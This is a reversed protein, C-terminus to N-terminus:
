ELFGIMYITTEETEPTRINLPASGSAVIKGDLYLPATVNPTTDKIYLPATDGLNFDTQIHLTTIPKSTSGDNLETTNRIFLSTNTDQLIPNSSTPDGGIIHTRLDGSAAPLQDANIYLPAEQTEEATAQGLMRLTTVGSAPQGSNPIAKIYLPTTEEYVTGGFSQIGDLYATTIGSAVVDSGIRLPATQSPPAAMFLDLDNVEEFQPGIYLPAVGTADPAGRITLTSTKIVQFGFPM